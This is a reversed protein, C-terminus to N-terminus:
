LVKKNDLFKGQYGMSVKIVEVVYGVWGRGVSVCMRRKCVLCLECYGAGFM